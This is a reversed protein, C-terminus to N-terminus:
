YIFKLNKIMPMTREKNNKKDTMVKRGGAPTDGASSNDEGETTSNLPHKFIASPFNRQGKLMIESSNALILDRAVPREVIEM